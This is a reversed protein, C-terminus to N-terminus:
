RVAKLSPIAYLSAVDAAHVQVRQGHGNFRYTMGTAPGAVALQAHGTYEFVTAASPQYTASGGRTASSPVSRLATRRNGCCSM